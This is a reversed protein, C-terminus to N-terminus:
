SPAEPLLPVGRAQKARIEAITAELALSRKATGPHTRSKKGLSFPSLSAYREWLGKAVDVEFGARAALYCGMYDADAEYDPTSGTRLIYHAFEHGLIVAIEDDSELFRLMGTTMIVQQGTMYAGVYDSDHMWSAAFCGLNVPVQVDFVRGWRDVRLSMHTGIRGSHRSYLDAARRLRKGDVELIVDEARLGAEAAAYGPEVWLLSVRGEVAFDRRATERFARALEGESTAIVGLVPSVKKACLERGHVRIAESVRLLRIRRDLAIRFAASRLRNVEADISPSEQSSAQTPGVLALALILGVLLRRMRDDRREVRGTYHFPWCGRM